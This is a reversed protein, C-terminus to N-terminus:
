PLCAVFIFLMEAQNKKEDAGTRHSQLPDCLRARINKEWDDTESWANWFPSEAAIMSEFRRRRRKTSDFINGHVRHGRPVDVDYTTTPIGNWHRWVMTSSLKGMMKCGEFEKEYKKLVDSSSM